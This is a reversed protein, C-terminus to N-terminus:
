STARPTPPATVDAQLTGFLYTYGLGMHSLFCAVLVLIARM